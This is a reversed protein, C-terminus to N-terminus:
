EYKISSLISKRIEKRAIFLHSEATRPSIGLAVAIQATSKGDFRSLSYVKARMPSLRAVHMKEISEIEHCEVEQLTTNISIGEASRLKNWVKERCNNHRLRDVILHRAITYIFNTVTEPTIMEYELTRLFVEQCIDEATDLNGVRNAIYSLLRKRLQM